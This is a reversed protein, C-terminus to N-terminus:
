CPPPTAGKSDAVIFSQCFIAILSRQKDRPLAELRRRLMRFGPDADLGTPTAEEEGVLYGPTEDLARAIRHLDGVTAERTNAALSALKAEGVNARLAVVHLPEGCTELLRTLREGIYRSTTM